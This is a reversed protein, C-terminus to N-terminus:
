PSKQYKAVAAPGRGRGKRSWGSFGTCLVIPIDARISTLEQALDVGSLRPMSLDTAALDFDRPRRRFAELAAAAGAVVTVQYDLTTLMQQWVGVLAAEDDGSLAQEPGHPLPGLREVAIGQDETTVPLHVLVRTGEGVSGRSIEAVSRSRRGRARNGGGFVSIRGPSKVPRGM